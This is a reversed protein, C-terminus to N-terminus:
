IYAKEVNTLIALLHKMDAGQNPGIMAKQKQIQGFGKELYNKM